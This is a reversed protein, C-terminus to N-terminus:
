EFLTTINIMYESSKPLELLGQPTAQALLVADAFRYEDPTALMLVGPSYRLRLAVVPSAAAALVAANRDRKVVALDYRAVADNADLAVAREFGSQLCTTTTGCRLITENVVCGSESACREYEAVAAAREGALQMQLASAFTLVQLAQRKSHPFAIIVDNKLAGRAFAVQKAWNGGTWPLDATSWYRPVSPERFLVWGAHMVAVLFVAHLIAAAANLASSENDGRRKAMVAAAISFASFPGAALIAVYAAADETELWGIPLHARALLAALAPAYIILALRVAAPIATRSQSVAAVVYLIFAVTLAIWTDPMESGTVRALSGIAVALIIWCFLSVLAAPQSLWRQRATTRVPIVGGASWCLPAALAALAVVTLRIAAAFRTRLDAAVQQRAVVWGVVQTGHEVFDPGYYHDGVMASAAIASVVLATLRWESARRRLVGVIVILAAAAAWVASQEAVAVCTALLAVGAVVLTQRRVGSLILPTIGLTLLALAVVASAAILMDRGVVRFANEVVLPDRRLRSLRQEERGAEATRGQRRLWDAYLESYPLDGAILIPTFERMRDLLAFARNVDGTRFRTAAMGLLGQAIQSQATQSQQPFHTFLVENDALYRTRLLDFATDAYMGGGPRPVSLAELRMVMRRSAGRGRAMEGFVGNIERDGSAADGAYYEALGLFFRHSVNFPEIACAARYRGIVANLDLAPGALSLADEAAAAVTIDKRDLFSAFARCVAISTQYDFDALVRDDVPPAMKGDAIRYIIPRIDGIEKKGFRADVILVGHENKVSKIPGTIYRRLVQGSNLDRETIFSPYATYLSRGILVSRSLLVEVVDGSHYNGELWWVPVGSERWVPVLWVTRGNTPDLRALFQPAVGPKYTDTAPDMQGQFMMAAERHRGPSAGYNFSLLGDHKSFAPPLDSDPVDALDGTAFVTEGSLIVAAQTKLPRSWLTRGAADIASITRGDRVLRVEATASGFTGIVVAVAAALRLSRRRWLADRREFADNSM